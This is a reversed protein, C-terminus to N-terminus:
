LTLLLFTYNIYIDLHLVYKIHYHCGGRLWRSFNKGVDLEKDGYFSGSSAEFTGYDSKSKSLVWRDTYDGLLLM